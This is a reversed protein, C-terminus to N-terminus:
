HLYDECSSKLIKRVKISDKKPSLLLSDFPDQIEHIVMSEQQNWVFCFYGKDIEESSQLGQYPSQLSFYILRSLSPSKQTINNGVNKDLVHNALLSSSKYFVDDLVRAIPDDFVQFSQQSTDM